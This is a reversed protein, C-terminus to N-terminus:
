PMHVHFLIGYLFVTFLIFAGCGRPFQLLCTSQAQLPTQYPGPGRMKTGFELLRSGLPALGPIPEQLGVTAGGRCDPTEQTLHPTWVCTLLKFSLLAWFSTYCSFGSLNRQMEKIFHSLCSEPIIIDAKEILVAM